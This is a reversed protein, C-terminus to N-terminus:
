ETGGNTFFTAKVRGNNNDKSATLTSINKQLDFEARDGSLLNKGQEIRVHGTIIIHQKLADYTAVDGYLIEKETKLVVNSTANVTNLIGDKFNAIIKDATLIQGERSLTANTSATIRNIVTGDKTDTYNATITPAIIKDSGQTITANGTATFTSQGRNWELANDALIEIANDNAFVQSPLFLFAIFFLIKKM